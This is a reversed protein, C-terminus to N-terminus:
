NRVEVRWDRRAGRVTLAVTQTTTDYRWDSSLKGDVAVVSPKQQVGFLTVEADNWWPVYGEHVVRSVVEVGSVNLYQAARRYAAIDDEAVEFRVQEPYAHDQGPDNMAVILSDVNPAAQAVSRSLDTTFTAIGCQRPLHNGVFALKRFASTLSAPM